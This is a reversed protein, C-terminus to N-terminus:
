GSRDTGASEITVRVLVRRERQMAERYDDWDTHEGASRRYYEVLGEMAEPLRIIESTGDIQVWPGFFRESIACLSLRPDRELNKTKMATERTSVELKGDDHVSVLVPSMQPRGDSRRTALIAKGNERLFQRAQDLDM